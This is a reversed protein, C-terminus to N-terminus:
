KDAARIWRDTDEIRSDVTLLLERELRSSERELEALTDVSRDGLSQDSLRSLCVGVFVGVFIFTGIMILLFM